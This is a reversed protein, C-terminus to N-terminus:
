ENAPGSGTASAEIVEQIVQRFGDFRLTVPTLTAVADLDHFYRKVTANAALWAPLKV